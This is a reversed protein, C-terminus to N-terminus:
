ETATNEPSIEKIIEQWYKDNKDIDEVTTGGAAENTFKGKVITQVETGSKLWEYELDAHGIDIAQFGMLGLDYALVTATPGLAILILKDKGYERAAKVLEDYVDFADRAPGLIRQLSRANVFLDNGVGLRSLKGEILLIDKDDWIKKLAAADAKSQEKDRFPIYFRSLATNLYTRKFNIYRYWDVRHKKLHETWFEQNKDTRLALRQEDFVDPLCVAIDNNSHLVEKLRKSLMADSKQFRIPLGLICMLEGDGFRAVSCQHTSVYEISEKVTLITPPTKRFSYFFRIIRNLIIQLHLSIRKLNGAM